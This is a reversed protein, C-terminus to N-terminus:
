HVSEPKATLIAFDLVGEEGGSLAKELLEIGTSDPLGQGAPQQDFLFYRNRNAPNRKELKSPPSSVQQEPAQECLEQESPAACFRQLPILTQLYWRRVSLAVTPVKLTWYTPLSMPSLCIAPTLPVVHGEVVGHFIHSKFENRRAECAASAHNWIICRHPTTSLNAMTARLLRLHRRRTFCFPGGVTVALSSLALCTSCPRIWSYHSSAQCDARSSKRLHDGLHYASALLRALWSRHVLGSIFDYACCFSLVLPSNVRNGMESQLKALVGLEAYVYLELRPPLLLIWFGGAAERFM